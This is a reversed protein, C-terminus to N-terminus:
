LKKRLFIRSQSLNEKTEVGTINFGRSLAFCLMAKYNNRTKLEVVAYGNQVAWSEQADALAAAIGMRRFGPLVGGMWTYFVTSSRAYGVKFGAPQGNVYAVLILHPVESLRRQYESIRYPKEFEPIAVSLQIVTDIDAIQIDIAPVTM